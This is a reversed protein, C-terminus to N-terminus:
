RGIIQSLGNECAIMFKVLGPNSSISIQGEGGSTNSWLALYAMPPDRERLLV